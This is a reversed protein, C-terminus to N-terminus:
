INYLHCCHFLAHDLIFNNTNIFDFVKNQSYVGVFHGCRQFMETGTSKLLHYKYQAHGGICGSILHIFCLTRRRSACHLSKFTRIFNSLESYMLSLLHPATENSLSMDWNGAASVSYGAGWVDSYYARADICVNEYHLWGWNCWYGLAACAVRVAAEVAACETELKLVAEQKDTGALCRFYACMCTNNHVWTRGRSHM